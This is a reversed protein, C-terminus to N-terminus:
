GLQATLVRPPVVLPVIGAWSAHPRWQLQDLGPRREGCTSYPSTNAHSEATAGIDHSSRQQPPLLKTPNTQPDKLPALTTKALAKRSGAM